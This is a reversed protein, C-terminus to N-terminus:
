YQTVVVSFPTNQSSCNWVLIKTISNKQFHHWQSSITAHHQVTTEQPRACTSTRHTVVNTDNPIGFVSMRFAIWIQETMYMFYVFNQKIPGIFHYCALLIPFQNSSPSSDRTESRLDTRFSISLVSKSGPISNRGQMRYFAVKGVALGPNRLAQDVLFCDDM